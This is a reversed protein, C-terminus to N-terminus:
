YSAYRVTDPLSISRGRLAVCSADINPQEHDDHWASMLNESDILKVLALSGAHRRVLRIDLRCPCLHGITDAAHQPISLAQVM